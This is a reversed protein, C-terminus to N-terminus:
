ISLLRASCPSACIAAVSADAGWWAWCPSFASIFMGSMESWDGGLGIEYSDDKNIIIRHEQGQEDHDFATPRM